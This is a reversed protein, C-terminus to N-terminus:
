ISKFPTECPFERNRIRLPPHFEPSFCTKQDNNYNIKDYHTTNQNQDRYVITNPWLIPLENPIGSIQCPRFDPKPVEILM